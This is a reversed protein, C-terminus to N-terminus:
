QKLSHLLRRCTHGQEFAGRRFHRIQKGKKWMEVNQKDKRSSIESIGCTVM